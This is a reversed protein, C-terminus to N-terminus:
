SEEETLTLLYAVLADLEDDDFRERYITLMQGPRYGDVVYQDPLLISTRLYLAADLGEVREGAVSGVGHLSPGVEDDGAEVSHCTTCGARRSEFLDRGEAAGPEPPEDVVTVLRRRGAPLDITEDFVTHVDDGEHLRVVIDAPRDALVDADVVAVQTAGDDLTRSSVTEGHLIVEVRDIAGVVPGPAEGSEVDAALRDGPRHDVIVRVEAADHTGTFPARTALGIGLASLAVLAGAGALAERGAPIRRADADPHRGPDGLAAEIEDSAVWDQTILSATRRPPHPARDGTAREAALTNGIGYRCESPACGLLQVSTAGAATLEKVFTAGVTGACGVTVVTAHENTSPEARHRDCAVVVPGDFGARPADVTSPVHVGPLDLADFVCSGLCIGCSVCRADDVVALLRDTSTSNGTTSGTMTIADYPCDVACLECGTCADADVVVAAADRRTLLRPLLAVAVAIAVLGLAFLPARDSLLPPLLFLVFPDLPMDATLAEADAAPLMGVPLALSVVALAGGMLAMWHRPPLWPLRSRRLHRWVFWGIVITLLVHAFWLVLLFGSGSGGVGSDGTELVSRVITGSGIGLPGLARATAESLAQARVDWILWYGTVGALWVLLLAAFGTAWRWRRLRGTFRGGAFIRWAHVVTTLVMAASAYRHLARVFRQIPHAELAAVSDYSADHGFEFFLTIYLGTVTVLGLLFVSITGAHPLPNLRHSGAIRRVPREIWVSAHDIADLAGALRRPEGGQGARDTPDNM